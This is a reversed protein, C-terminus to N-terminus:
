INFLGDVKILPKKAKREGFEQSDRSRLFCASRKRCRYHCNGQRKQCARVLDRRSGLLVQHADDGQWKSSEGVLPVGGTVAKLGGSHLRSM